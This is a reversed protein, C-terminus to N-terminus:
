ISILDKTDAFTNVWGQILGVVAAVAEEDNQVLSLQLDVHHIDSKNCQVIGLLQGHVWQPIGSSYLVM